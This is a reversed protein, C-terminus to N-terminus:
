LTSSLDPRSSSSRLSLSSSTREYREHMQDQATIADALDDAMNRMRVALHKEAKSGWKHGQEAVRLPSAAYSASLSGGGGGGGGGPVNRGSTNSRRPPTRALGDM